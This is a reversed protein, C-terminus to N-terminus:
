RRGYSARGSGLQNVVAGTPRHRLKELAGAPVRLADVEVLHVLTRRPSWPPSSPARGAARCPSRARPAQASPCRDAEPARMRTVSIARQALVASARTALRHMPPPLRRRHRDFEDSHKLPLKLRQEVPRAEGDKGSGTAAHFLCICARAGWRGTRSRGASDDVGPTSPAASQAMHSAMLACKPTSCSANVESSLVANRAGGLALVHIAGGFGSFPGAGCRRDGRARCAPRRNVWWV